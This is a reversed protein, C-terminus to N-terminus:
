GISAGWPRLDGPSEVRRMPGGCTACPLAGTIALDAGDMESENGDEDVLVPTLDITFTEVCEDCRWHSVFTTM